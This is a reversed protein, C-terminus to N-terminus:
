KTGKNNQGLWNENQGPNYEIRDSIEDSKMIEATLLDIQLKLSQLKMLLIRKNM